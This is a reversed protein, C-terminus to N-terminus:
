TRHQMPEIFAGLLATKVPASWSVEFVRDRAMGLRNWIISTLYEGTNGMSQKMANGYTVGRDDSWRLSVEPLTSASSTVPPGFDSNFDANFDSGTATSPQNFTGVQIDAIFSRYTVRSGDDILHPFTRICIIPQGNDTFNEPDLKYLRGNQWDGVINLGYLFACCSARHRHLKGNLDAYALEHWQGSAIEFAWTKDATPFTLIFFAHGQQQYCFGIADSIVSYKQIEAEIAYTSIREAQYGNTKVVVGRGERDQSLWLLCNDIKAVSNKATIGHELFVGPIAGFAFDSAGTDYWVESTLAGLIWVQRNLVRVAVVPDASGSKQVLDLPDFGIAVTTASFTFGSGAGGLYTNSASLSDNTAYSSGGATITVDTVAGGSVTVTAQAGSGSGGTLPVNYYTNNVYGTGAGTISGSIVRAHVGTLMAFTVNSLSIYWQATGPNNFVFYTDCYDVWDAGLFVPDTIKAFAHTALDIVWGNSATGDVIIVCLGNDFMKVPNQGDNITGLLNYGFSSDIFYVDNEVVMFGDGNTARYLCRSLGVSPPDGGKQTLGPRPYHAVPAPAQSDTPYFEPFLNVARQASAIVSRSQYAGGILPVRPM